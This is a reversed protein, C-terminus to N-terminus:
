KLHRLALCIASSLMYESNDAVIKAQLEEPMQIHEFVRVKRVPMGIMSDSIYKCLVPYNQEMGTFYLNDLKEIKWEMIKTIYFAQLTKIENLLFSLWNSSENIVDDNLAIESHKEKFFVPFFEKEVFSKAQEESMQMHGILLNVFDYFRFNLYHSFRLSGNFYISFVSNEWGLSILIEHKDAVEVCFNEYITSLANAPYDLAELEYGLEELMDMFGQCFKRPTSSVIVDQTKKLESISTGCVQMDSIYNNTDPMIKKGLLFEELEEDDEIVSTQTFRLLNEEDAFCIIVTHQKPPFEAVVSRMIKELSAYFEDETKILYYSWPYFLASSLTIIEAERSVAVVRLGLRSFEM